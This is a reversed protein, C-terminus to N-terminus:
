PISAGRQTEEGDNMKKRSRIWGWQSIKAENCWLKIRAPLFFLQRLSWWRCFNRCTKAVLPRKGDIFSFMREWIQRIKGFWLSIVWASCVLLTTYLLTVKITVFVVPVYLLLLRWNAQNKGCVCLTARRKASNLQGNTISTKYYVIM